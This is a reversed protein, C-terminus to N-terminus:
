KFFKNLRTEIEQFDLLNIATGSPGVGTPVTLAKIATLLSVLIEKLDEDNSQFSVKEIESMMAIYYADTNKIQAMLVASGVKPFLILGKDQEDDIARLRVESFVLDPNELLKVECLVKNTDVSVVEGMMASSDISLKQKLTNRLLDDM